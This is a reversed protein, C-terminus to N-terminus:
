KKALKLLWVNATSTGYEYAINRGDPSWDPYRVFTDAHTYHTLQREKGSDTSVAFVNWIGNRFGAFAIEKDDPSWSAPWNQGADHTLSLFPGGAKTIVAIQTNVGDAVEVALFKGDHSWVPFGRIHPQFSLQNAHGDSLSLTWVNVQGNDTRHYAALQGDPSLQIANMRENTQFVDELGKTRANWRWLHAVNRNDHTWYCLSDPNCWGPDFAPVDGPLKEANSGDTSVTWIQGDQGKQTVLFAIMSSDRSFVPRTKRLRTDHTLAFPTGSQGSTSLNVSYLNDQTNLVGFAL